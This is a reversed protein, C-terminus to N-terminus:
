ELHILNMFIADIIKPNTVKATEIMTGEVKVINKKKNKNCEYFETVVHIGLSKM